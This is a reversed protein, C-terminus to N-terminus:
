GSWVCVCVMRGTMTYGNAIYLMANTYLLRQTFLFFSLFFSVFCYRVFCSSFFVIRTKRKKKKLYPNLCVSERLTSSSLLLFVSSLKRQISTLQVRLRKCTRERQALRSFLFGTGFISYSLLHYFLPFICTCVAFPIVIVYAVLEVVSSLLLFFFLIVSSTFFFQQQSRTPETVLSLDDDAAAAAAPRSTPARELLLDGAKEM